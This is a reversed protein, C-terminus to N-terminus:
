DSTVAPWDDATWSLRRLGLTPAGQKLGDYYHFTFWNTGSELFLGIQGPGIFRGTSGLFLDGRSDIMSDGARNVFPGTISASRGVRIEYTSNTGRCCTGWNVFLYYYKGHRVLYSAEISGNYALPMIPSDPALRLGTAPNLQVLYIGGWYSGFCLWLNDQGDRVPCPDIANYPSGNTSQVVPGADIWGYAPSDPDLTHNTALGIASLQRGFTSVAYYLYYIGNTHILDPAWFQGSFGPVANTTWSPPRAFVRPGDVWNHLDVSWKSSIGKGTGFLYYRGECRVIRSPDHIRLDGTLPEPCPSTGAILTGAWLWGPVGTRLLKRV